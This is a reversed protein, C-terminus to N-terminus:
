SFPLEELATLIADDSEQHSTFYCGYSPPMADGLSIQAEDFFKTTMSDTYGITEEGLITVLDGHILRAKWGKRILPLIISGQEVFGLTGL